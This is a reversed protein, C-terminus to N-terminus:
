SKVRILIRLLRNTVAPASPEHRASPEIIVHGLKRSPLIRKRGGLFFSALAEDNVTCVLSDNRLIDRRRESGGSEGPKRCPKPFLPDDM